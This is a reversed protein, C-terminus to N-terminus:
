ELIHKYDEMNSIQPIIRHQKVPSPTERQAKAPTSVQKGALSLL